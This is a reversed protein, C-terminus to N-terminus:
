SHASRASWRKKTIECTTSHNLTDGYSSAGCTCKIGHQKAWANVKQCHAEEERRIKRNSESENELLHDAIQRAVSEGRYNQVNFSDRYITPSNKKFLDAAIKFVEATANEIRGTPGDVNGDWFDGGKDYIYVSSVDPGHSVVKVYVGTVKNRWTQTRLSGDENRRSSSKEWLRAIDEFDFESDEQLYNILTRSKM